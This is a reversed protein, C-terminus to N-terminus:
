VVEDLEGKHQVATQLLGRMVMLILAVTSVAVTAGMLTVPVTIPGLGEIFTADITVIAVLATAVWASNVMLTVWKLAAADFIRGREVMGALKWTAVLILEACAVTAIALAAYPVALYNVEPFDQAEAWAIWPIFVVQALLGGAFLIVILVKLLSLMWRNM